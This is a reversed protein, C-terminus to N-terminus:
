KNLTFIGRIVNKKENEVYLRNVEYVCIAILCFVPHLKHLVVGAIWCWSVKRNRKLLYVTLQMSLCLYCNFSSTAKTCLVLLGAGLFLLLMVRDLFDKVLIPQLMGYLVAVDSSRLRLGIVLIFNINSWHFNRIFNLFFWKLHIEGLYEIVVSDSLWLKFLFKCSVLNSM